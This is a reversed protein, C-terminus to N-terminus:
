AKLSEGILELQTRISGDYVMGGYRAVIGGILNEDVALTLEVQKGTMRSFEKRLAELTEEDLETASVLEVKTRGEAADVFRAFNESVLSVYAIKNKELMLCLLSKLEKSLKLKKLLSVLVAKREAVEFVPNCLVRNLEQNLDLFAAFEKLESEAEALRGQEQVLAFYAKAYRKAIIDRIL